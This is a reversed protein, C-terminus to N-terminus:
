LYSVMMEALLGAGDFVPVLDPFAVYKTGPV